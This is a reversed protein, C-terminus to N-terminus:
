RPSFVRHRDFWGCWLVLGVGAIDTWAVAEWAPAPPGFAAGLYLLCLVGLYAAFAFRGVRDTARTALAYAIVGIAFLGGEGGLTAPVSNWLGLGLRAQSWPALPLDPRHSVVDLWWHSVVLLGAVWAGRLDSRLRWCALSWVAAWVVTMFLSHSIPYADFALPTFATNGPDIRVREWGALLCIGWLLDPFLSAGVLVGLSTRPAVRKAVFGAAIHGLFM